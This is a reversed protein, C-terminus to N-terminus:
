NAIVYMVSSEEEKMDINRAEEEVTDLIRVVQIDSGDTDTVFTRLDSMDIVVNESDVNESLPGALTPVERKSGKDSKTRKDHTKEHKILYDKRAFSRDCSPCQFPREGTHTRMHKRLDGWQIFRKGCEECVANKTGTHSKLHITYTSRARFYKNCESCHYPKEGSHIRSHIKLENKGSLKKGCIDCDYKLTAGESHKKKEHEKLYRKASFLKLCFGCQFKVNANTHYDVKHQSLANSNQYRKSCIDCEFDKSKRHFEKHQMLYQLSTFSKDCESCSFPRHGSHSRLHIELSNASALNLDCESCKFAANKGANSLHVRARHSQLKKETALKKFCISCQFKQPVIDSKTSVKQQNDLKNHGPNRVVANTVSLKNVDITNILTSTATNNILSSNLDEINIDKLDVVTDPHSLNNPLNFTMLTEVTTTAGINEQAVTMKREPPTTIGLMSFVESVTENREENGYLCKRFSVLDQKSTDPLIITVDDEGGLEAETLLRRLLNSSAVLLALHCREPEGGGSGPCLRATLFLDSEFQSVFETFLTDCHKRLDSSENDSRM